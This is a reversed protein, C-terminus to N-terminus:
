INLEIREKLLKKNFLCIFNNMAVINPMHINENAMIHVSVAVWKM